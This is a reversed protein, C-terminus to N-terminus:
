PHEQKLIHGDPLSAVLAKVASEGLADRADSQASFLMQWLPCGRDLGWMMNACRLYTQELAVKFARHEARLPAYADYVCREQSPSAGAGFGYVDVVLDRAAKEAAERWLDPQPPPDQKSM